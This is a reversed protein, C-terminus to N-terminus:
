WSPCAGIEAGARGTEIAIWRAALDGANAGAKAIIEPDLTPPTRMASIM